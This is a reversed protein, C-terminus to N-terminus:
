RNIYDIIFRTIRITVFGSNIEESIDRNQREEIDVEDTYQLLLISTTIIGKPGRM